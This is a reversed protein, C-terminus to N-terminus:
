QTMPISYTCKRITFQRQAEHYQQHNDGHPPRQQVGESDGVVDLFLSIVKMYIKWSKLEIWIVSEMALLGYIIMIKRRRVDEDQEKEEKREEM